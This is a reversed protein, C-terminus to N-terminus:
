AIQKLNRAHFEELRMNLAENTDDNFVARPSKLEDKEIIRSRMRMIRIVKRM